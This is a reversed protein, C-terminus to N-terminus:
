LIVHFQKVQVFDSLEAKIQSVDCRYGFKSEYRMCLEMVPLSGGSEDMLLQMLQLGLYPINFEKVLTAHERGDRQEIQHNVIIFM